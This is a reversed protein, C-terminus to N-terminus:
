GKSCKRTADGSTKGKYWSKQRVPGLFHRDVGHSTAIKEREKKKQPACFFGLIHSAPFFLLPPDELFLSFFSSCDSSGEFQSLRRTANHRLQGEFAGGFSASGSNLCLLDGGGQVCTIQIWRLWDLFSKLILGFVFNSLLDSRGTYLVSNRDVLGVQPWKSCTMGEM